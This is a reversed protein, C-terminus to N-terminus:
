EQKNAYKKHNTTRNKIQESIVLREKKNLGIFYFVILTSFLCICGSCLLNLIISESNCNILTPIITSIIGTAILPLCIKTLYVSVPLYVLSKLIFARVVVTIISIAISIYFSIEPYPYYSLLIYSIPLNLIMLGGTIIEFTKIKGTALASAIAPGNISDIIANFLVLQTFIVTHNPVEKLWISLVEETNLIVPLAIIYILIFCIKSSRLILNHLEKFNGSAYLKYIQPKVAIFFNNGLSDVGVMIQFALARAANIAPNFFMNLLINIGQNRIIVSLSGILHWGSYSIVEKVRHRDWYFSYKCEKFNKKCYYYYYYTIIINNFCLLIGYLILKDFGFLYLLYVATLSLISEVISIYAFAAMKEHAIILAKYPVFAIHAIFTIIACQYVWNMAYIREHPITLNTNVFWLGVSEAIIFIILSFIIFVSMNLRFLKVLEEKNNKGLEYAFYRQCTAALTSSFFGFMAVVGGVVNYIGYDEEGLVDLVVRSTYFTVLMILLMRIYLFLTNRAIRKNNTIQNTNTM